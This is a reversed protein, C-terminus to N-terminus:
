PHYWAKSSCTQIEFSEYVLPCSHFYLVIHIGAQRKICYWFNWTHLRLFSFEQCTEINLTMIDDHQQQTMINDAKGKSM